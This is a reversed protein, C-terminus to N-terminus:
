QMGVVGIVRFLNNAGCADNQSNLHQFQGGASGCLTRPEVITGVLSRLKDSFFFIDFCSQKHRCTSSSLCAICSGRTLIHSSAVRASIPREDATTKADSRYMVSDRDATLRITEQVGAVGLM